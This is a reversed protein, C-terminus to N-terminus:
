EYYNDSCEVLENLEGVKVIMNPKEDEREFLSWIEVGYSDEVEKETPEYDLEEATKYYNALYAVEKNYVEQCEVLTGVFEKQMISQLNYDGHALVKYTKM